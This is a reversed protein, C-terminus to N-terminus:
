WPLFLIIGVSKEVNQFFTTYDRTRKKLLKTVM